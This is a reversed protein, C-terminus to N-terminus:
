YTLSDVIKGQTDYLVITERSNKWLPYSYKLYLRWEPQYFDADNKHTNVCSPYNIKNYIFNMCETSWNTPLPDTQIRCRPYADIYDLCADNITRQPISSLDEKGAAPCQTSIYPVFTQFQGLYGSCKNTKFSAGNPSIGSIIYITDGPNAYVHDEVNQMGTFFLYTGRPIAVSHGSSLSKIVWGTMPITSPANRDVRITIYEQSPDSSRNVYSMSVTDAYQSKTKKDEEVKLEEKLRKLENETEQISNKAVVQNQPANILHLEPQKGLQSAGGVLSVFVIGLIIILEFPGDKM